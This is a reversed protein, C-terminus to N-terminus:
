VYNERSEDEIVYVKEEIREGMANLSGLTSETEIYQLGTELIKNKISLRKENVIDLSIRKGTEKDITRIIAKM